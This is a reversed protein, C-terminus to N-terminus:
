YDYDNYHNYIEGAGNTGDHVNAKAGSHNIFCWECWSEPHGYGPLFACRRFISLLHCFRAVTIKVGCIHRDIKWQMRILAIFFTSSANKLNMQKLIEVHNARGQHLWSPVIDILNWISLQKGIRLCFIVMILTKLIEHTVNWAFLPPAELEISGLSHSESVEVEGLGWSVSDMTLTFTAEHKLHTMNKGLTSPKTTELVLTKWDEKPNDLLVTLTRYIEGYSSKFQM